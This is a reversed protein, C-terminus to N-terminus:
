FNKLNECIQYEREAKEAVEKCAPVHNLLGMMVMNQFTCNPQVHIGTKEEIM